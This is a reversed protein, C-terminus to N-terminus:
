DDLSSWFLGAVVSMGAAGFLLVANDSSRHLLDVGSYWVLAVLCVFTLLGVLVNKM